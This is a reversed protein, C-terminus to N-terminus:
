ARHASRSPACTSWWGTPVRPFRLLTGASTLDFREFTAVTTDAVALETVQASSTSANRVGLTITSAAGSQAIAASPSWAKTAVPQLRVPISATVSVSDTDDAFGVASATATNTIVQADLVPTQQPLRMGIALSQAAGAPLGTQGPAGPFPLTFVVTLTRTGPDFTVTRLSNSQPLATVEFEAPLVDVLTFNQCNTTLSSCSGTIRYELEEGPLIVPKSATKVVSLEGDAAISVGGGSAPPPTAPLTTVSTTDSAPVAPETTSPPVPVEDSAAAPSTTTPAPDTPVSSTDPAAPAEAPPVVPEEAVAVVPVATVAVVSAVLLARLM